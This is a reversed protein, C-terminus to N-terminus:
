EIAIEQVYDASDEAGGKIADVINRILKPITQGSVKAFIALALVILIGANIIWNLNM